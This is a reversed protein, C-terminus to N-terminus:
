QAVHFWCFLCRQFLIFQSNWMLINICFPMRACIHLICDTAKTRGTLQINLIDGRWFRWLKRTTLRASGWQTVMYRSPFIDCFSCHQVKFWRSTNKLRRTSFGAVEWASVTWDLKPSRSLRIWVFSSLWTDGRGRDQWLCWCPVWCFHLREGPRKRGQHRGWRGQVNLMCRKRSFHNPWIEVM